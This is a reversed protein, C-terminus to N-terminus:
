KNVGYWKMLLEKLSLSKKTVKEDHRELRDNLDKTLKLWRDIELYDTADYKDKDYNDFIDEVIEKINKILNKTEKKM